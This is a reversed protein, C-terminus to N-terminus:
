YKAAAPVASRALLPSLPLRSTPSYLSYATLSKVRTRNLSSPHLAIPTHTLPLHSVPISPLPALAVTYSRVHLSPAVHACSHSVCDGDLQREVWQASGSRPHPPKCSTANSCVSACACPSIRVRALLCLHIESQMCTSRLLSCILTLNRHAYSYFRTLLMKQLPAASNPEM